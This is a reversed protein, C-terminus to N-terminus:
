SESGNQRGGEKVVLTIHATRKRIKTARGMTRARIRKMTPGQDAVAKVVVLSDANLKYADEANAMASVLVKEIIRAAKKPTFKLISLAERCNKGRITELVQGAKSYSIRISKVSAKPMDLLRDIKEIDTAKLDNVLTEPNIDAARLVRVAKRLKLGPVALIAELIEKDKQLETGVLKM